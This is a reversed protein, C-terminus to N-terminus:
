WFTIPALEKSFSDDDSSINLVTYTHSLVSNNPSILLTCYCTISHKALQRSCFYVPMGSLVILKILIFHKVTIWYCYIKDPLINVLVFIYLRLDWVTTITTSLLFICTFSFYCHIPDVNLVINYSQYLLFSRISQQWSLFIYFCVSLGNPYNNLVFIYM